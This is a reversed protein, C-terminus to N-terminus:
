VYSENQFYKLKFYQLNSAGGTRPQLQSAQGIRLPLRPPPLQPQPPQPHPQGIRPRGTHPKKYLTSMIEEETLEHGLQMSGPNVGRMSSSGPPPTNVYINESGTRPRPTLSYYADGRGLDLRESIGIRNKLDKLFKLLIDYRGLPTNMVFEVLLKKFYPNSALPPDSAVPPNSTFYANFTLDNNSPLTSNIKDLPLNALIDRPLYTLIQPRPLHPTFDRTYDNITKLMNRWKGRFTDDVKETVSGVFIAYFHVAALTCDFDFKFLINRNSNKNFVDQIVQRLTMGNFLKTPVDKIYEYIGGEINSQLKIITYNDGHEVVDTGAIKNKTGYVEGPGEAGDDIYVVYYGGQDIRQQVGDTGYWKNQPENILRGAKRIGDNITDIHKIQGLQNHNQRTILSSFLQRFELPLMDFFAGLVEHNNNSDIEITVTPPAQAHSAPLATPRATALQRRLAVAQGVAQGVPEQAHSTPPAPAQAQSASRGAQAQSASRGAQAQAHSATSATPRALAHAQSLHRRVAQAYSETSHDGYTDNIIYGIITPDRPNIPNIPNVIHIGDIGNITTNTIMIDKNYQDIGYTITNINYTNDSLYNGNIAYTYIM